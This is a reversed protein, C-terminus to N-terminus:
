KAKNSHCYATVFHDGQREIQCTRECRRIELSTWKGYDIEKCKEQQAEQYRVFAQKYQAHSPLAPFEKRLDYDSFDPQLSAPVYISFGSVRDGKLLTQYQYTLEDIPSMEKAQRARILRTLISEEGSFVGLQLAYRSDGVLPTSESMDRTNFSRYGDKTNCTFAGGDERWYIYESFANYKRREEALYCEEPYYREVTYHQWDGVQYILNTEKDARGLVKKSRSTRTKVLLEKGDNLLRVRKIKDYALDGWNGELWKKRLEPTDPNPLALPLESMVMSNTDFEYAKGLQSMYAKSSDPLWGGFNCDGGFREIQRTKLDAVACGKLPVFLGMNFFLFRGNPSRQPRLNKTFGVLGGVEESTLLTQLNSGDLNMTYLGAQERNEALHIQTIIQPKDGPSGWQALPATRPDAVELIWDARESTRDVFLGMSSVVTNLAKNYKEQQAQVLAREDLWQQVQPSFTSSVGVGAIALATLGLVVKKNM